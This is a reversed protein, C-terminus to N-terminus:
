GNSYGIINEPKFWGYRITSGTLSCSVYQIEVWPLALLRRIKSKRLIVAPLMYGSTISRVYM